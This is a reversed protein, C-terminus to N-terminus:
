SMKAHGTFFLKGSESTFKLSDMDVAFKFGVLGHQGFVKARPETNSKTKYPGRKSGKVNGPKAKALENGSIEAKLTNLKAQTGQPTRKPNDKLYEAKAIKREAKSMHIMKSLTAVEEPSYFVFPRKM